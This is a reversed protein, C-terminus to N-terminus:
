DELFIKRISEIQYENIGCSILYNEAKEKLSNGPFESILLNQLSLIEQPATNSLGYEKLCDGQSVGLIAELLYCVTGTRDRGYTCHLYIPYNDANALETFVARTVEKGSETFIEGYMVMNYYKHNVRSGLADKTTDTKGRLDMDTKIGLNTLMDMMGENTTHYNTEVAGDMETGRYLLGQRIRKGSDTRWNGIDRVNAIGDITLIRPTNATKFYGTSVKEGSTTYATVRFYYDSNVFLHKFEYVTQSGEIIETKAEKFNANDALEIKYHSASGGFVSLKLSVPVEADIKEKASNFTNPTIKSNQPNLLDVALYQQVADCVLVGGGNNVTVNLVMEPASLQQEGDSTNYWKSSVYSAAFIAVATILCLLLLWLPVMKPAKRRSSHHKHRKHRKHHSSTSHHHSSSSYHSHSSHHHSSSSHHHESGEHHHHSTHSEGDPVPSSQKMEGDNNAIENIIKNEEM